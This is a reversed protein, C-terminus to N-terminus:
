LLSSLLNHHADNLFISRPNLEIILTILNPLSIYRSKSDALEILQLTLPDSDKISGIKLVSVETWMFSDVTARRNVEDFDFTDHM